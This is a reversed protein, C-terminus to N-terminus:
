YSHWAPDVNMGVDGARFNIGPPDQAWFIVTSIWHTTGM